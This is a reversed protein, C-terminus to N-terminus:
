LEADVNLWGGSGAGVFLLTASGATLGTAVTTDVQITNCTSPQSLSAGSCAIFPGNASNVHLNGTSLIGFARMPVPCVLTFASNVTSYSHGTAVIGTSFSSWRVFYRQCLTLEESWTRREFETAVEGEELQVQAIDFTGSQQGLNATRSSFNSGADFWFAIRLNDNNNTGLTKGTISPIDV